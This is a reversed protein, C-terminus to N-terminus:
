QINEMVCDTTITTASTQGIIRGLNWTYPYTLTVHTSIITGGAGNLVRDDRDVTLKFTSCGTSGSTYTYTAASTSTTTISPAGITCKTVGSNTLYNAVVNGIATAENPTTANTLDLYLGSQSVAYRAGERAANNLVQKLNYGGGFDIIGVVLVLLLPMALAFELLQAGETSAIRAGLGLAARANSRYGVIM